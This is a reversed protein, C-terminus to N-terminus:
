IEKYIRKRLDIDVVIIIIEEYDVRYLVRFDGVRIRFLKESTGYIRKADHPIPDEALKEIAKIIRQSNKSDLKKIFNKAPTDLFIEFM